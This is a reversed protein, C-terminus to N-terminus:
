TRGFFQASVPATKAASSRRRDLDTLAPGFGTWRQRSSPRFQNTKPCCKGPAQGPKLLTPGAGDRATEALKPGSDVLLQGFRALTSGLQTGNQGPNPWWAHLNRGINLIRSFSAHARTTGRACRDAPARRNSRPRTSIPAPCPPARSPPAERGRAERPPAGGCVCVCVAPSRFPTQKTPPTSRHAGHVRHRSSHIEVCM